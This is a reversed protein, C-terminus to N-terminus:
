KDKERFDQSYEAFDSSGEDATEVDVWTYHVTDSDTYIYDLWQLVKKNGRILWRVRPLGMKLEKDGVATGGEYASVM